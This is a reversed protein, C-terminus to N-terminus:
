KGRLLAEPHRELYDAFIRISRAAASIEKLTSDLSYLVKSDNGVFGETAALASRSQALTLDASKLANLMAALLPDTQGDVKAILTRVDNLAASLNEASQQTGPSSVLADVQQLIHQLDRGIDEIPLSAIQNMVGTATQALDELGSPITPIEPLPQDADLAAKPQDKHFDLAVVLGGTLLNGSALRARFGKDVLEAMAARHQQQVDAGDDQDNNGVDGTVGVRGPELEILVPVKLSEDGIDYVLRVETVRGVKIGRFEVPAGVHLGRVSGDFHLLYPVADTFIAETVNKFSDYLPFEHGAEAVNSGATSLPSDFAVGGVLLSQLSGTSLSVGEANLDVNFGSVNWFRSQETVLGDFPEKVFAHLTIGRGDEDLEYGLIEGVELGRFQIPSSRSVSNLTDTRLVFERGAIDSSILPPEELGVFESQAEGEGPDIEIFAGSVLTSLGSVGGAGVRPRVIWFRTGDNLHPGIGKKMNATVTIHSLDDVLRVETVLGVEVDRYKIKTKDAELGEATKFNIAITPGKQALTTYALWLAVAGAVLPILWVLSFGTSSREAPMPVEHGQQDPEPSTPQM